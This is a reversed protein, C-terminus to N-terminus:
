DSVPNIEGQSGWGAGHQRTWRMGDWREHRHGVGRRPVPRRSNQFSKGVAFRFIARRALEDRLKEADHGPEGRGDMKMELFLFVHIGPVPGSM